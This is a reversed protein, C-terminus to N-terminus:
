YSQQTEQKPLKKRYAIVILTTTLLLLLIIWLPFEPIADPIEHEPLQADNNEVTNNPSDGWLKIGYGGNERISNGVIRANPSDYFNISNEQNNTISNGTIVTSDSNWSYIGDKANATINNGTILNGFCQEYPAFLVVGYDNNGLYNRTILSNNTAVLLIGQSNNTLVLNQVTINTCNVLAVYVADFPVTKDQESVWYIVPKGNITNSSDIDNIFHTMQVSTESQSYLNYKNNILQNNRLTNNPSHNFYVGYTNNAITNDLLTNGGTFLWFMIGYSNNTITNGSLTNNTCGDLTLGYTFEIGYSFNCVHLNKVEVSNIEQFWLGTRDGDGELTYGAGDIVIGSRFVVISGVVDGTFTYVNGSRQIMDSGNVAGTATIEISHAPV